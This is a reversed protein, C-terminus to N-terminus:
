KRGNVVMQSMQTIQSWKRVRTVMQWWKRGISVVQLWKRGHAVMNRDIAVMHSWNRNNAVKAVMQSCNRSIVVM